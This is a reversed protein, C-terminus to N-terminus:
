TDTWLSSMCFLGFPDSTIETRFGPDETVQPLTPGGCRVSPVGCGRVRVGGPTRTCLLIGLVRPVRVEEPVTDVM